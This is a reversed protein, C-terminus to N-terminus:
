MKKPKYWGKKRSYEQIQKGIKAADEELGHRMSQILAYRLKTLQRDRMREKINVFNKRSIQRAEKTLAPNNSIAYLSKLDEERSGDM